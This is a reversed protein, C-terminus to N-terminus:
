KLFLPVKKLNIKGTWLEKIDSKIWDYRKLYKKLNEVNFNLSYDILYFGSKLNCQLSSTNFAYLNPRLSLGYGYDYTDLQIEQGPKISIVGAGVGGSRCSSSKKVHEGQRDTITFKGAEYICWFFNISSKTKNRLNLKPHIVKSHTTSEKIDFTIKTALGNIPKSWAQNEVSFSRFFLKIDNLLKKDTQNRYSLYLILHQSGNNISYANVYTEWNVRNLKQPIALQGKYAGEHASAKLIFGDNNPGTVENAKPSIEGNKQRAHIMFKKTNYSITLNYNNQSINCKKKQKKILNYLNSYFKDVGPIIPAAAASYIFCSTLAFIVLNLLVHKKEWQTIM